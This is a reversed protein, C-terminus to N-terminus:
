NSVKFNRAANHKNSYEKEMYDVWKDYDEQNQIPKFKNQGYTLKEFRECDFKGAKKRYESDLVEYPKSNWNITLPGLRIIRKRQILRYGENDSMCYTSIYSYYLLKNDSHNKRISFRKRLNM